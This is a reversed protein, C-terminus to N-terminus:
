RKSVSYAMSVSTCIRRNKWLMAGDHFNLKLARSVNKSLAYSQQHITSCVIFANMPPSSSGHGQHPDSSQNAVLNASPQVLSASAHAVRGKGMKRQRMRRTLTYQAGNADMPTPATSHVTNFSSTRSGLSYLAKLKDNSRKRSSGRTVTRSPVGM